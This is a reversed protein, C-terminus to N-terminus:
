FPNGCRPCQNADSQTTEEHCATCTKSSPERVKDLQVKEWCDYCLGESGEEINGDADLPLPVEGCEQCVPAYKAGAEEQERAGIEEESELTSPFSRATEEAEETPPAVATSGCAFYNEEGCAEVFEVVKDNLAEVLADVQEADIPEGNDRHLSVSAVLDVRVSDETVIPTIKM